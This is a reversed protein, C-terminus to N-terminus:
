HSSASIGTSTKVPPTPVYALFGGLMIVAAMVVLERRVSVRLTSDGSAALRPMLSRKHYAGFAGLAILGAVKLLVTVGYASNILDSWEGLFLVSQVIGTVAVLSISILALGSVTTAARISDALNRDASIIWLLGGMWFAVGALHIAKMPIAILPVIAAPHGIAGGILVAGLAFAFAIKLRRALLIAWVTMAVLVLRTGENFGPNKVVAAKVIVPDWIHAQSLHMLWEVYHLAFMITAAVSLWSLLRMQGPTVAGSMSTFALLGCLGLLPILALGRLTAPLIAAGAVAPEMGGAKGDKHASPIHMAPLPTKSGSGVYFVFSGSVPHGDASIVHWEARYSDDALIGPTAVLAHIDRPDSILRVVHLVGDTGTLMVHSLESVVPESFVLRIAGFGSKVRAGDAPASSLLTAHAHATAPLTIAGVTLGLAVRGCSHLRALFRM